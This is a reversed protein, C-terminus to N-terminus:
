LIAGRGKKCTNALQLFFNEIAIGCDYTDGLLLGYFTKSAPTILKSRLKPTSSQLLQLLGTGPFNSPYVHM